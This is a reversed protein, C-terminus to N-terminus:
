GLARSMAGCLVGGGGTVAAVQGDLGFVKTLFEISM